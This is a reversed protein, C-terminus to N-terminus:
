MVHGVTLRTGEAESKQGIFKYNEKCIDKRHAEQSFIYKRRYKRAKRLDEKRIRSRMKSMKLM